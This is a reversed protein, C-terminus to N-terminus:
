RQRRLAGQDVFTQFENDDLFMKYIFSSQSGGCERHIELKPPKRHTLAVGDRIRQERAARIVASENKALESVIQAAKFRKQADRNLAELRNLEQGNPDDTPVVDGPELGSEKRLKDYKAKINAMEAEISDTIKQKKLYREFIPKHKRIARDFKRADGLGFAIDEETKIILACLKSLDGNYKIAQDRSWTKRRILLKSGLEAQLSYYREKLSEFKLGPLIDPDDDDWDWPWHGLKWPRRETPAKTETNEGDHKASITGGPPVQIKQRKGPVKGGRGRIENILILLRKDLLNREQFAKEVESDTYDDPSNVIEYIKQLKQQLRQYEDTLEEVTSQQALVPRPSITLTITLCLLICAFIMRACGPAKGISSFSDRPMDFLDM